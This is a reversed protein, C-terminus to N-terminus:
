LWVKEGSQQSELAGILTHIINYTKEFSLRPNGERVGQLFVQINRRFMSYSDEIYCHEYNESGFVHLQFTSSIHQFLHFTAVVGTSFTVHVVERDKQGVSWVSRPVPDDLLSFVAELMHVGYKIWDKKGVATVLEIAGLKQLSNKLLDVERAYRMSSSSFIFKGELVSKQFYSLDSRNAALPKDIFIPINSEIFPRAMEKHYDPDDRALIVADVQGLMDELHPVVMEIGSSCAISEAMSKDQAWVHTVSAGSVGLSNIHENLYQVVGPYGAKLIEGADYIGNIIASWSYPHANGLSMGIMGIKIM